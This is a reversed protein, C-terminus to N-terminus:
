VPVARYFGATGAFRLKRTGLQAVQFGNSRLLNPLEDDHVDVIHMSGGPLLVRRAEGLAAAKVESDLHHLMMSSLVRDFSADAYPLQQAYVQEFRVDNYRRAKRRARALARLDPDTATVHADPQVRMIRTTLNGTGCGIELIRAGDFLEAQGALMDYGPMMGLVRAILDYAPLLLDNGTAPLYDHKNGMRTTMPNPNDKTMNM